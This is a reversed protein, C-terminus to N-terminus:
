PTDTAALEAIIRSCSGTTNVVSKGSRPKRAPSIPQTAITWAPPAMVIGAGHMMSWYVVPKSRTPGSMKKNIRFRAPQFRNKILQECVFQFGDSAKDADPEFHCIVQYITTSYEDLFDNWALDAHDSTLQELIQEIARPPM